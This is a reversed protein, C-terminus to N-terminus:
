GDAPVHSAYYLNERNPNFNLFEGSCFRTIGQASAHRTLGPSLKPLCGNESQDISKLGCVFVVLSFSSKSHGFRYIATDRPAEVVKSITLICNLTM